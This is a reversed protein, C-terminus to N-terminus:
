FMLSYDRYITRDFLATIVCGERPSRMLRQVRDTQRDTERAKNSKPRGFILYGCCVDGFYCIVHVSYSARASITTM